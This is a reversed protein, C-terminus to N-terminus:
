LDLQEHRQLRRELRAVGGRRLPFPLRASPGSVGRCVGERRGAPPSGDDTVRRPLWVNNSSRSAVSAANSSRSSGTSFTVILKAAGSSWNGGDPTVSGAM